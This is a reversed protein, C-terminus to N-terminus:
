GKIDLDNQKLLNNIFIYNYTKGKQEYTTIKANLAVYFSQDHANHNVKASHIVAEGEPNLPPALCSNAM